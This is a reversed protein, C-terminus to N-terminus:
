NWRCQVTRFYEHAAILRQSLKLSTEILQLLGRLYNWPLKWSSCYTESIIEPFNGHAAILRQSLKLSTEM